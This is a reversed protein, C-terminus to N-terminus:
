KKLSPFDSVCKDMIMEVLIRSNKIITQIGNEDLNDWHIGAAV